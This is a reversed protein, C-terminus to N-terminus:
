CSNVMASIVIEAQYMDIFYVPKLQALITTTVPIVCYWGIYIYPQELGTHSCLHNNTYVIHLRIFVSKTVVPHLTALWQERYISYLCHM